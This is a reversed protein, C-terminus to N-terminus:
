PRPAPDKQWDSWIRRVRRGNSATDYRAVDVALDSVNARGLAALLNFGAVYQDHQARVLLVRSNLLEQEANLVEIITRLGVSNEARVGELALANARVAVEASQTQARASLLQEFDDRAQETVLRDVRAIETLARSQFAQAQRIRSSAAGGQLLPITVSLGVVQTSQDNRIGPTGAPVGLSENAAGLYNIYNASTTGSLQIRRGARAVDVDYGSATESARAALLNPNGARALDVARDSTDPLAGLPPPPALVGPAHGVVRVYAQQSSVLQAEAARLTAQASALRAESQAVDTRTLDGVEFRDRSQRLQEELVRVNNRDLDVVEADRRVDEYAVTARTLVDNELADLDYTGATVRSEAARVSNRILGGRFLPLQLGISGTINRGNANFSGISGLQQNVGVTGSLTPRKLAVAQAVGEDLARINARSGALEPNTLYASALADRLTETPRAVPPPVAARDPTNTPAAVPVPVPTALGRRAAPVPAAVASAAILAYGAVACVLTRVVRM